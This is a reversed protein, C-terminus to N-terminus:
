LASQKLCYVNTGSLTSIFFYRNCVPALDNCEPLFHQIIFSPLTMEQWYIIIHLKSHWNLMKLAPMIITIVCSEPQHCNCNISYLKIEHFTITLMLYSIIIKCLRCYFRSNFYLIRTYTCKKDTTYIIFIDIKIKILCRLCINRTANYMYVCDYCFCFMPIYYLLYM